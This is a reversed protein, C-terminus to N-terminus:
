TFLNFKSRRIAALVLWQDVKPQLHKYKKVLIRYSVYDFLRPDRRNEKM